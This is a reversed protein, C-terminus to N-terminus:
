DRKFEFTVGGTGNDEKATREKLMKSKQDIARLLRDQVRTIADEVMVIKDVLAQKRKTMEKVSPSDRNDWKQLLVHEETEEILAKEKKIRDLIQMMRRERIALLRIREDLLSLPDDAIKDYLKKEEDTLTDLSIATYEGTKQGNKNGFGAGKANKNGIPGGKGGRNGLAHKSGFAPGRHKPINREEPPLALIRDWKDECKWKRVRVAPVKLFESIEKPTIDGSARIYMRLAEDRRPNRATM